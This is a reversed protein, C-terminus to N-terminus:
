IYEMLNVTFGKQLSHKMAGQCAICCEIKQPGNFGLKWKRYTFVDGVM